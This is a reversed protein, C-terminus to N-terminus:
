RRIHINNSALQHIVALRTQTIFTGDKNSPNRSQMTYNQDALDIERSNNNEVSRRGNDNVNTQM